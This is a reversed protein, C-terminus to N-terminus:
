SSQNEVPDAEHPRQSPPKELQASLQSLASMSLKIAWAVFMFFVTSLIGAFLEFEYWIILGAVLALFINVAQLIDAAFKLKESLTKGVFMWM